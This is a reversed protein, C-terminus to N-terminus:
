KHAAVFLSDALGHNIQYQDFSLAFDFSRGFKPMAVTMEVRMLVRGLVWYPGVRTREIVMRRVGKLLIPIPSHEFNVEQRVIVFDNTDVWVLGSPVAPDLLSRPKFEIRYILHNGALDRGVIRYSYQRRAEPRFAFNVIEESMDGRFEVSVDDDKKGKSDKSEKSAKKDPKEWARLTISRVRDPRKKYVRSVTEMIPEAGHPGDNRVVRATSLFTQDQMLSDRRAEGRAVRDLIEDLTVRPARILVEPVSTHMTDEVALTPGPNGGPGPRVATRPPAAAAVALASVLILVPVLVPKM